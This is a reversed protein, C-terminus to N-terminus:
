ESVTELLKTSQAAQDIRSSTDMVLLALALLVLFGLVNARNIKM